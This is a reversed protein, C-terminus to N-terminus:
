KCLLIVLIFRGCGAGGSVGRGENDVFASWGEPEFDGDGM